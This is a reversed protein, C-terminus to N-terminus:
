VLRIIAGEQIKTLDYMFGQWGSRRANESLPKRAVFIEPTQIDASLYYIAYDKEEKVLVLFLPMYIGSDLREKQVSWAAGLLQKPLKDINTSTKAKVQALYGCFDCIIDACKFNQRLQKLTKKRKCKPCTCNKVVLSEGLDGLKQFRTSM